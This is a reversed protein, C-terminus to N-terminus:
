EDGLGLILMLGLTIAIELDDGELFLFLIILILLIDGTDINELSFNKLLGGLTQGIGGTLGGLLDSHGQPASDFPPTPHASGRTPASAAGPPPTQPPPAVPAAAPAADADLYRNYM